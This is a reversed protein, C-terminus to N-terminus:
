ANPTEEEDSTEWAAVAVAEPRGRHPDRRRDPDVRVADVRSWRAVFAEIMVVLEKVSGFREIKSQTESNRHARCRRGSHRARRLRQRASSRVDLRNPGTLREEEHGGAPTAPTDLM